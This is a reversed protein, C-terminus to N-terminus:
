NDADCGTGDTQIFAAFGYNVVIRGAVDVICGIFDHLFGIFSQFSGAAGALACQRFQPLVFYLCQFFVHLIKQMGKVLDFIHIEGM